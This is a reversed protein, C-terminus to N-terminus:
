EGSLLGMAVYERWGIQGTVPLRNQQQFKKVAQETAYGFIGDIGQDYLGLQKLRKQLYMVDGGKEGKVLRRRGMFPDGIIHVPTGIKVWRYLQEVDRNYMRICGHSELRGISWPKNTGHIGYTGFPINLGIWRTGFGGSWQGKNIVKWNGVPTPTERKGIAVPFSAFIEQDVLVLLSLYTTDVIIRLDGPPPMTTVATATSQGLAQWTPLDVMGTVTLHNKRQFAKVAEMTEADFVGTILRDYLRENKLFRQLEAIDEGAAGLTIETEPPCACGGPAAGFLVPQWCLVFFLLLCWTKGTFLRM